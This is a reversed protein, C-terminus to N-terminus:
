FPNSLASCLRKSTNNIIGRIWFPMNYGPTVCWWSGDLLLNKTRLTQLFPRLTDLVPLQIGNIKVTWNRSPERGDVSWVYSLIQYRPLSDIPFVKFEGSICDTDDVFRCLRVENDRVPYDCYLKQTEYM